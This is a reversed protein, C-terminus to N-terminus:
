SLAPPGTAPPLGTARVFALLPPAAPPAARQAAQAPLLLAPLALDAVAMQGCAWACRDAPSKPSPKSVEGTLPDLVMEVAGDGTCLVLVLGGDAAQAPMVAPSILSLVLFPALLAWDLMRRLGRSKGRVM